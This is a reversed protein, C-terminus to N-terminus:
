QAPAEAPAEEAPAAEGETAGDELAKQAEVAAALEPDAIEVTANNMLTDVTSSFARIMAQQQLQQGLQQMSPPSSQRKEELKILHWGFDSQVPESVQGAETLASAADAFPKVMRDSTFFGLDGGKSASGPDISHEEALAAFDAGGDIEGKLQRAEEETEVLIHRAHIEEQSQFEAVYEDYLAQVAEPTVQAAIVDAFYDRRLAQDELYALRQQFLPEQDMGEAKAAGAMVKMDILVRVLFARREEPPMQQLEQALDEAAFSLDAETIEDGDVTAVVAAPDAQAAGAPQGAADAPAQAPAADQAMLQPAVASGLLAIVLAGAVPAFRKSVKFM